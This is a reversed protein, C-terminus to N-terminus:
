QQNTKIDILTVTSKIPQNIGIKNGDGSVGFARYSPIVFTITEGKKMLKIGDQLAPIFDEKDVKYSRKMKEYLLNGKINKIDFEIEVVDELKPSISQVSDKKNYYYWYGQTSEEYVHVTDKRIWSELRSKELGNLKKNKRIVEKYFNTTGHKKPKRAVPEGCSFLFMFTVLFLIRVKM